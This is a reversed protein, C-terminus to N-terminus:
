SEDNSVFDPYATASHESFDLGQDQAEDTARLGITKDIIQFVIWSVTFAGVPIVIAGLLQISFNQFPAARNFMSVCLTGFFGCFLHVPIAGVADDLKFKLLISGGFVIILGAILGIVVAAWPAVVNCCATIAVLGGLAGNIASEPDAWGRFIWHFIMGSILGAGGALLTNVAILGVIPDAKLQSGCNFGFWGFFLLFMGLAGLPINHGAFIRESGDELFRGKRPGITIIGALAFAGGVAHVATSGAFDSFGKAALWGDGGGFGYNKAFGGWAWHGFFPYIIACAIAAYVLYGPFYTREAMAGSSITVTAAAFMSQFLFFLWVSSNESISADFAFNGLGVVGGQSWGFLLSFGVFFFGIIGVSMDSVNKMVINIANKSRSFGMELLCFGAQMLFVLAAAVVLFVVNHPEETPVQEAAQTTEQALLNSQTSLYGLATLLLTYKKV